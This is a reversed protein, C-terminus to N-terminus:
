IKNEKLAQQIAQANKLDCTIILHDGVHIITHGHPFIYEKGRRMSSIIIEEPWQVEDITRRSLPSDPEITYVFSHPKSVVVNADDPIINELLSEYIPKVELFDAMVYAILSVVALPMLQNFGGVMETVLLIATVPAKGIATFYGAMAFLIFHAIYQGDMNFYYVMLQAFLAGIIAGLSLIPLFIGGPLSAGYSIMSFIFRFIFLGVLVSLSLNWDALQTIIGSGGGM